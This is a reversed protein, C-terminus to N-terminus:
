VARLIKTGQGPISGTGEATFICVVSSWWPIELFQVNKKKKKLCKLSRIKPNLFVVLSTM